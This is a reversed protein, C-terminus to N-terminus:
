NMSTKLHLSWHYTQDQPVPSWLRTKRRGSSIYLHAEDILPCDLFARVLVRRLIQWDARFRDHLVSLKRLTSPPLLSLAVREWADEEKTDRKVLWSLPHSSFDRPLTSIYPGFVPDQSDEDGLPKHLLLHLSVLLVGSLRRGRLQAYLKAVTKKNMLATSPVKFLTTSRQM